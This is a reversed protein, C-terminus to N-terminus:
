CKGSDNFSLIVTFWCEISFVENCSNQENVKLTDKVWGARM